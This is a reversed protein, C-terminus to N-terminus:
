CLSPLGGKDDSKEKKANSPLQSRAGRRPAAPGATARVEVLGKLQIVLDDIDLQLLGCDDRPSRSWRLVRRGAARTRGPGTAVRDAAGRARCGGRRHRRPRLVR